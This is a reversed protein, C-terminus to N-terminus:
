FIFLKISVHVQTWTFFGPEGSRIDLIVVSLTLMLAVTFNQTLPLADTGVQPCKLSCYRLLVVCVLYGLEFLFFFELAVSQMESHVFDFLLVM